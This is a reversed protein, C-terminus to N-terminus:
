PRVARAFLPRTQKDLDALVRDLPDGRYVANELLDGGIDEIQPWTSITPTRRLHAIAELFVRASAPPRAPDLFAPSDAVAMNSPVTRGTRAMIEAGTRGLAFELFRWADDPNRGGRTLCYADSHLINVPTTQRPLAAVDWDLGGAARLTTTSRRSSLLMALKGNVFRSEDDMSEVEEETPLVGFRQRLNVLDQLAARAAPTGLTFRTPAADDDTLTGGRSWVLPALRILSAETGLGYTGIPAPARDAEVANAVNGHIDRTLAIAAAVLDNWHWGPKPPAVGYKAFLAKNYYVVLSSVNQPLCLQRGRWRFAELAQPYLDAASLATSRALREDVPALADRAAFQGYYRYNMLFLEPPAGGAIATSLRAILDKRDAAEVLQVPRDPAATRYADILTRYAQLEEPTGFVMLRVPERDAAPGGACGALAGALLVAAALARLRM